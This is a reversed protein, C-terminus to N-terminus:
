LCKLILHALNMLNSVHIYLRGVYSIYVLNDNDVKWPWIPVIKLAVNYKQEGLGLLNWVSNKSIYNTSVKHSKQVREGQLVIIHYKYFIFTIPIRMTWNCLFQAWSKNRTLSNTEYRNQTPFKDQTWPAV